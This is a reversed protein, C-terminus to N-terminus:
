SGKICNWIGNKPAFCIANNNSSVAYASSNSSANITDTSGTVGNTGSQAYIDMTSAGANAVIMAEGQLAYPLCVSDGSTAVTAVQQLFNGATLSLCAAQTGGAHATLGSQYSFNQGGAVGLVWTQNIAAEQGNPLPPNGVLAYAVSAAASATMIAGVLMDRIARLM